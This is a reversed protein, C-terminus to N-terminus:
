GRLCVRRHRPSPTSADHDELGPVSMRPTVPQVHRQGDIVFWGVIIQHTWLQVNVYQKMKTAAIAGREDRDEILTSM